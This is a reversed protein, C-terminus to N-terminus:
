TRTDMGAPDPSAAAPHPRAQSGSCRARAARADRLERGAARGPWWAVLGGPGAVLGGPRGARGGPRGAARGPRLGGPGAPPRGARGGPRGARGSAAAPLALMASRMGSVPWLVRVPRVLLAHDRLSEASRLSRPAIEGRLRRRASLRRRVPGRRSLGPGSRRAVSRWAVGLYRLRGCLIVTLLAVAAVHWFAESEARTPRL